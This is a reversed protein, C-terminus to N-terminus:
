GTMLVWHGAANALDRFEAGAVIVTGTIENGSGDRVVSALIDPAELLLMKM